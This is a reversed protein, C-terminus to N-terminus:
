TVVPLVGHIYRRYRTDQRRNANRATRLIVASGTTTLNAAPWCVPAAVTSIPPQSFKSIMVHRRMYMTVYQIFIARCHATTFELHAIACWVCVM